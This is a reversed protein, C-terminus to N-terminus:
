RSADQAADGSLPHDRVSALLRETLSGGILNGLLDSFNQMLAGNAAAALQGTQRSLAAHLADFQGPWATSEHVSALWSHAPRTVFLSRQFLAAVGRRGIIPSLAADVDRWMSVAADAIRGATAGQTALRDLAAQIRQAEGQM